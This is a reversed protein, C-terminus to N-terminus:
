RFVSRVGAGARGAGGGRRRGGQTLCREVRTEQTTVHIPAGLYRWGRTDQARGAAILEARNGIDSRYGHGEDTGRALVACIRHHRRSCRLDFGAALQILVFAIAAATSSIRGAM